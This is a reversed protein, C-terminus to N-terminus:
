KITLIKNKILTNVMITTTIPMEDNDNIDTEDVFNEDNLVMIIINSLIDSTKGSTDTEMLSKQLKALQMLNIEMTFINIYAIIILFFLM